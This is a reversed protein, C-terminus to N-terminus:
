PRGGQAMPHAVKAELPDRRTEEQSSITPHRSAEQEKLDSTLGQTRIQEQIESM